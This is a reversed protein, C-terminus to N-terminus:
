SRRAPESHFLLGDGESYLLVSGASAGAPLQWLTWGQENAYQQAEAVDTEIAGTRPAALALLLGSGDSQPLFSQLLLQGDVVDQEAQQPAEDQRQWTTTVLSEAGRTHLVMLVSLGDGRETAFLPRTSWGDGNQETFLREDQSALDPHLNLEAPGRYAWPEATSWAYPSPDTEVPMATGPGEWEASPGSVDDTAEPAPLQDVTRGPMAGEVVVIRDLAPDGQETTSGVGAAERQLRVDRGSRAPGYSLLTDPAAVVFLVSGETLRERWALAYTAERLPEDVALDPGAEDAVAVGWHPGGRPGEAVFFVSASGAVVRAFLPALRVDDEGFAHAVAWERSITELTGDEILARDGRFAWPAAPDLAYHDRWPTTNVSPESAAPPQVTPSSTVLSAVVPGGVGLASVALASGAVTAAVRRRRLGRARREVGDLLDPPVDLDGTRSALTSRLSEDLPTM